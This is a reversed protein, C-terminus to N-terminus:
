EGGDLNKRAMIIGYNVGVCKLFSIFVCIKRLKLDKLLLTFETLYLDSLIQEVSVNCNEVYYTFM